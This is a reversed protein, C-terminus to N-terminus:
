LLFKATKLYRTKHFEMVWIKKWYTCKWVINECLSTFLEHFSCKDENMRAVKVAAWHFNRLKRHRFIGKFFPLIYFVNCFTMKRSNRLNPIELLLNLDSSSIFYFSRGQLLFDDFPSNSTSPIVYLKIQVLEFLSRTFYLEFTSCNFTPWM